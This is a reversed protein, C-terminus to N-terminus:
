RGPPVKAKLEEFWNLILNIHTVEPSRLPTRLQVGYFRQGGPAVGFCRVGACGLALVRSDFEFLPHPRGIRPPSGPAFDAAMMRSTGARDPQTVFFLERGSPNWAPSIGGALSVPTGAAAPPYPRVYVQTVGSGVNSGYALWLGDPSFEPYAERSTQTLPQVRAQGTEVAIMVINGPGRVTAVLRGDPTFSSPMLDGPALVQPPSSGDAPQVALSRRGGDLWEFVLRRGDRSWIPAGVEGTATVPNLTGRNLDYVWLGVETITMITVALSGGDPSVRMAPGYSKVPAPLPAVQGRRDVTVLTGVPYAPPVTAPVWALTGTAAIAIQGAGTVDLPNSPILAQAVGGLVPVEKGIVQLHQADFQVAFLVGRRLFVLHGTPVYRADAADKLLVRRTGTPLTQAVVEEDGWSIQRKRVTYLLTREGPLVWPLVHRVEAEGLTTVAAPVGEPPIAWIRGDDSRGFFVRGSRDWVLGWPPNALGSVLDMAPGGGLPVKRIARRAWFAVWQGDASVAPVQAGETDPLPRAEDADLRRVYLQQVGGRRGVFVLTQGDPTWTLATRSGAPTTVFVAFAGGANLQEAPRVDLRLRAPSLPPPSPRLLWTLSAGTAVLVLGAAIVVVTRLNRQWRLPTATATGIGSTEGMWRLEDAIDHASEWRDDPQKALCRRVVREVAPPTMPQLTALAPPESNMIHGILSAASSGEFARKGTLMEYLMAGLAWLDTRADAPKGEVQEPAMYQLTGVITGESTLPATRTPASALSEAAPREGHRKLKALGFDLLKAGTETLMVNGPKLDRHIIGQRHAASLADAIETAVTLAQELPLAGRELRQALTEGTLHEMVLFSVSVPGPALPQPGPLVTEGVDFLACIHPHNLGAVTKAEREFRARRDPDASFQAPLVKIAVSRDLRTDKAKYVVGMGGEGLKELVLYPGLMTGIV